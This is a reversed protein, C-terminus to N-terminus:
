WGGGLIFLVLFCIVRMWVKRYINLVFSGSWVAKMVSLWSAVHILAFMWFNYARLSVFYFLFLSCLSNRVKMLAIKFKRNHSGSVNTWKIYLLVAQRKLFLSKFLVQKVNTKEKGMQNKGPAQKSQRAKCTMLYDVSEKWPWLLCSIGSRCLFIEVSM